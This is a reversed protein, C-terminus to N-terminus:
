IEIRQSTFFIFPSGSLDGEYMGYGEVVKILREKGRESSGLMDYATCLIRMKFWLIITYINLPSPGLVLNTVSTLSVELLEYFISPM